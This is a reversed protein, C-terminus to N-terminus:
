GPPKPDFLARKDQKEKYEEAQPLPEKKEAINPWKTAYDANIAKYEAWKEPLDSEPFIANTPTSSWFIPARM